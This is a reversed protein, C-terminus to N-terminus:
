CEHQVVRMHDTALVTMCLLSDAAPSTSDLPAGFTCALATTVRCCVIHQMSAQVLHCSCAPLWGILCSTRDGIASEQWVCSHPLCVIWMMVVM